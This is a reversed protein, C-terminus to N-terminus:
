IVAADITLVNGGRGFIGEYVLVAGAISTFTNILLTWIIHGFMCRFISIWTASMYYGSKYLRCIITTFWVRIELERGPVDGGQGRLPRAWGGTPPEVPVNHLVLSTTLQLLMSCTNITVRHVIKVKVNYVLTKITIVVNVLDLLPTSATKCGLRM